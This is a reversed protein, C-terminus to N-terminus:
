PFNTRDKCWQKFSSRFGHVTLNPCDMDEQLYKRMAADSLIDGNKNAFLLTEAEGKPVLALAHRSLPVRHGRDAKMREPSLNWVKDKIEGLRAEVTENTRAVTLITWLLARASVAERKQLEAIFAPLEAYDM